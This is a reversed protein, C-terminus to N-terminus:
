RGPDKFKVAIQVMVTVPKGDKTAPKFKWSKVTQKAIRDLEPNLEQTVDVMGVCGDEHIIARVLVTGQIGSGRLSDPYPIENNGREVSCHRPQALPRDSQASSSLALLVISLRAALKKM